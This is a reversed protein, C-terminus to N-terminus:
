ERRELSGFCGVVEWVTLCDGCNDGARAGVLGLGGRRCFFFLAIEPSRCNFAWLAAGFISRAPCGLTGCIRARAWHWAQNKVWSIPTFHRRGRGRRGEFIVAPLILLRRPSRALAERLARARCSIKSRAIHIRRPALPFSFNEGRPRCVKAQFAIQASAGRAPTQFNLPRLPLARPSTRPISLSYPSTIQSAPSHHTPQHAQVNASQEQSYQLHSTNKRQNKTESEAKNQVNM